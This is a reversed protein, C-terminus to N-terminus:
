LNTTPLKAKFIAFLSLSMAKPKHLRFIVSERDRAQRTPGHMGGQAASRLAHHRRPPSIDSHVATPQYYSM